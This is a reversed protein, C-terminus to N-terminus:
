LWGVGDSGDWYQRRVIPMNEGIVGMGDCGLQDQSDPNAVMRSKTM